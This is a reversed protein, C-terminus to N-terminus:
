HCAHAAGLPAYEDRCRAADHGPAVPAVPGGSGPREARVAGAPTSTPTPAAGALSAPPGGDSGAAPAPTHGSAALMAGPGATGAPDGDQAPSGGGDVGMDPISSLRAAARAVRAAVLADLANLVPPPPLLAQLGHGNAWHWACVGPSGVGPSCQRRGNPWGKIPHQIQVRQVVGLDLLLAHVHAADLSPFGAGKWCLSGSPSLGNGAPRRAARM